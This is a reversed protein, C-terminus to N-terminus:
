TRHAEEQLALSFSPNYHRHHMNQMKNMVHMHVYRLVKAMNILAQLTETKVGGDVIRVQSDIGIQGSVFLLKGGAAAPIEM